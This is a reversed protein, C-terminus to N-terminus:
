WASDRNGASVEGTSELANWMAIGVLVL